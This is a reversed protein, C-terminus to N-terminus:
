IQVVDSSLWVPAAILARFGAFRAAEAELISRTMLGISQFKGQVAIRLSNIYFFAAPELFPNTKIREEWSPHEHQIRARTESEDYRANKVDEALERSLGVIFLLGVRDKRFLQGGMVPQDGKYIICSGTQSGASIATMARVRAISAEYPELNDPRGGVTASEFVKLLEPEKVPHFWKIRYGAPPENITTLGHVMAYERVQRFGQSQLLAVLPHPTLEEAFRITKVRVGKLQFQLQVSNWWIKPNSNKSFMGHYVGNGEIWAPNHTTVAFVGEPKQLIELSPQIYEITMTRMRDLVKLKLNEKDPKNM